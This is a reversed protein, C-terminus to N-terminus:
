EQEYQKREKRTAVRASIIRIKDDRDTHSVVLLRGTSSHGYTLYRDEDASHGPDFYTMALPDGFVTGAEHFSVGHKDRNRAAKKADWEFEM